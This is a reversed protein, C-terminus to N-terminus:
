LAAERRRRRRLSLFAASALCLLGCGAAVLAVLFANATTPGSSGSPPMMNHSGEQVAAAIGGTPGATPIAQVQGQVVSTPEPAGRSAWPDATPNAIQSLAPGAVSNSSGGNSAGSGGGSGAVPAETIGPTSVPAPAATRVPATTPLPNSFPSATPAARLGSPSPGGEAFACDYYYSSGGIWGGCGVRDYSGMIINWHTPSAKWEILANGATSYTWTRWTKSGSFTYLFAGSGYGTNSDDIEGVSGYGWGQMVSVFLKTSLTYTSADCLRLYHSMSGYAAFDQARGAITRSSDDPCPIAGNRAESALYVDIKLPAKGQAARAGNMLRVLETAQADAPGSAAHVAPVQWTLSFTFLSLALVM